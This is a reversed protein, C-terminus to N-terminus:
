PLALVEYRSDPEWCTDHGIYWVQVVLVRGAGDTWARKIFAPNECVCGPEDAPCDPSIPESAKLNWPASQRLIEEGARTVILVGPDEFRVTLGNGQLGGRYADIASRPADDELPSLPEWRHRALLARARLLRAELTRTVEEGAGADIRDLLADAEDAGLLTVQERAGGAVEVLRLTGNPNGRAGDERTLALAVVRGDASIAPLREFAPVPLALDHDELLRVQPGDEPLTVGESAITPDTPEDTHEAARPGCGLGLAVACLTTLYRKM